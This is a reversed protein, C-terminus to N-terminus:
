GARIDITSCLNTDGRNATCIRYSGPSAVEPLPVVDPGPGAVGLDDWSWDEGVPHWSAYPEALLLFQLEWSAGRQQELVFAIGREDELPFHIEVRSGAQAERPEVRMRDPAMVSGDDWPGATPSSAPDGPTSTESDPPGETGGVDGEPSVCM